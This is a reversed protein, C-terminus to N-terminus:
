ILDARKYFFLAPKTLLRASALFEMLGSCSSRMLSKHHENTKAEARARAADLGANAYVDRNVMSTVIYYSAIAVVLANLHRRVPGAGRLRKRTEDRAFKMHRSEEVVHINNITRVFPAVREDRMWDRQMVDLVEEAVLIAAYAAEGFALTKFARGLELVPRRPRYAPAGLKAAGRAFMISHRCEDAVETLAWQFRPDTPDKAYMDRLVMQQLIMEFWIGTSAVSAAEQRTLAKRQAETLEGWYPTAYLTSWEPSAGHHDTDLPTDWDVETAPDYSLKASSDLLRRAVDQEAARDQDEPRVTSSAM